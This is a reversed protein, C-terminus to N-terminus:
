RRFPRKISVGGSQPKTAQRQQNRLADELQRLKAEQEAIRKRMADVQAEPQHGAPAIGQLQPAYQRAYAGAQTGDLRRHVEFDNRARLRALEAAYESAGINTLHRKMAAQEHYRHWFQQSYPMAPPMGWGGAAQSQSLVHKYNYPRFAGYGGYAPIEQIYGHLWPEPADYPYLQDGNETVPYGAVIGPQVPSAHYYDAAVPGPYGETAGGVPQVPGAGLSASVAVCLVTILM